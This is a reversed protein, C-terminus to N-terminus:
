RARGARRRRLGRDASCGHVTTLNGTALPPSSAELAWTTGTRHWITGTSASSTSTTRPRAGSRSSPAGSRRRCRRRRGAPATRTSCCTTRSRRGARPRGASPGRTPRRRPGSATSRRRRARPPTPSSRATGTRSAGARGSSGSTQPAPATSGGSRTRGAPTSTRGPQATTTCSRRAAHRQRAPRRRRLRRGAGHGVRLAARRRSRAPRRAVGAAGRGDAVRRSSPAAPAGRAGRGPDRGRAESTGRGRRLGRRARLRGQLHVPVRRLNDPQGCEPTVQIKKTLTRGERDKITVELGYATGYVNTSSWENPCVPINSFDSIATSVATSPTGSVGYGDGTDILNVTRSDVRVQQTALDRLAGTLQLGCGDVNTARVGVFIVRGGQPPLILPVSDGDSLM